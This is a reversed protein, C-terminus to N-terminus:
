NKSKKQPCNKILEKNSGAMIWVDYENLIYTPVKEIECIDLIRVVDGYQTKTNFKVHIGNKSDKNRVINRINSRLQTFIFEDHKITNTLEYSKFNRFSLIKDLSCNYNDQYFNKSPLGLNFSNQQEFNKNKILLLICSLILLIFVISAISYVFIKKKVIM